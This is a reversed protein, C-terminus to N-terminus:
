TEGFLLDEDDDNNNNNNNNNGSGGSGNNNRRSRSRRGGRSNRAERLSIAAADLSTLPERVTIAGTRPDVHFKKEYNGKIIEYRLQSNKNSPEDDDVAKNSHVIFIYKFYTQIQSNEM